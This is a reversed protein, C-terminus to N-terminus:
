KIEVIEKDKTDLKFKSPKIETFIVFDKIIAEIPRDNNGNIYIDIKKIILDETILVKIKKIEDQEDPILLIEFFNNKKFYSVNYEKELPENLIGIFIKFDRSTFLEKDVKQVYIYKDGKTNTFINEGDCVTIVTQLGSKYETRFFYPKQFLLKLKVIEYRDEQHLKDKLPIKINAVISFVKIDKKFAEFKDIISVEEAFLFSNFILFYIIFFLLRYSM